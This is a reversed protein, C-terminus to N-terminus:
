ELMSSQKICCLGSRPLFNVILSLLLLYKQIGQAKLCVLETVSVTKKYHTTWECYLISINIKFSHRYTTRSHCHLMYPKLNNTLMLVIGVTGNCLNHEMMDNKLYM